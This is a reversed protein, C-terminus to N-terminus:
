QVLLLPVFAFAGIPRNDTPPETTLLLPGVSDLMLTIGRADVVVDEAVDWCLLLVAVVVSAM